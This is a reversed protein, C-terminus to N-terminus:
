VPIDMPPRRTTQREASTTGQLSPGGVASTALLAKAPSTWDGTDQYLKMAEKFQDVERNDLTNIRQKQEHHIAELTSTVSNPSTFVLRGYNEAEALAKTEGIVPSLADSIGKAFVQSLETLSGVRSLTFSTLPNDQGDAYAQSAKAIIDAAEADTLGHKPLINQARQRITDLTDGQGVIRGAIKDAESDSLGQMRQLGSSVADRFMQFLHLVEAGQDQQQQLAFEGVAKKVQEATAPGSLGLGNLQSVISDTLADYAMGGGVTMLGQIGEKTVINVQDASLNLEQQLKVGLISELYLQRGVVPVAEDSTQGSINAIIQPTLGPMDLSRAVSSLGVQLLGNALDGAVLKALEQKQSADLSSLDPDSEMVGMVNQKLFESSTLSTIQKLFGLSTAVNLTSLAKAGYSLPNILDNGPGASALGLYTLLRPLLAGSYSVLASGAPVGYRNIVSEYFQKGLISSLHPDSAIGKKGLTNLAVGGGQSGQTNEKGAFDPIKLGVGMRNDIFDSSLEASNRSQELIGLLVLRPELYIAIVDVLPPASVNIHALPSPVTMAPLGNSNFPFLTLAAMQSLNTVPYTLPPTFGSANIAAITPNTQNNLTNNTGNAAVNYNQINAQVEFQLPDTTPDPANPLSVPSIIPMLPLPPLPPSLQARTENLDQIKLNEQAAFANWNSIAANVQIMAVGRTSVYQQYNAKAAQYTALADQYTVKAADFSAQAADFNAQSADFTTKAANFNAEAAQLHAPDPDAGSQFAELAANYQELATNYTQQAQQHSLVVNNYAQLSNAYSGQAANFAAIAANMASVQAADAAVGANWQDYANNLTTEHGEINDQNIQNQIREYDYIQNIFQRLSAAQDAADKFMGNLKTANQFNALFEQLQAALQTASLDGYYSLLPMDASAPQPISMSAQSTFAGDNFQVQGPHGAYPNNPGVPPLSSPGGAGSSPNVNM